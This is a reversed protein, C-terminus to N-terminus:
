GSRPAVHAFPPGVRAPQRRGADTRARAADAIERRAVGLLWAAFPVDGAYQALEAFARALIRETLAEAHERAPTRRAAFAYVCRFSAEYIVAFADSDGLAARQVLATDTTMLM